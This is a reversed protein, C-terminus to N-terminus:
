YYKWKSKNNNFSKTLQDQYFAKIDKKRKDIENIIFLVFVFFILGTGIYLILNYDIM